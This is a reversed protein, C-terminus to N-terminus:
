GSDSGLKAGSLGRGLPLPLTKERMFMIAGPGKLAFSLFVVNLGSAAASSLDLGSVDCLLVGVNLLKLLLELDRFELRLLLPM